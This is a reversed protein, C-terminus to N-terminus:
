QYGATKSLDRAGAFRSGAPISFFPPQSSPKGTRSTWHGVIAEKRSWVKFTLKREVSDICFQYCLATYTSLEERCFIRFCEHLSPTVTSAGMEEHGWAVSSSALLRVRWGEQPVAVSHNYAQCLLISRAQSWASYKSFASRCDEVKGEAQFSRGISLRALIGLEWHSWAGWLVLRGQDATEGCHRLTCTRCLTSGYFWALALCLCNWKQM